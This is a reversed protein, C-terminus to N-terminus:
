VKSMITNVVEDFPSVFFHIVLLCLTVVSLNLYVLNMMKYRVVHADSKNKIYPILAMPQMKLTSAISAQGRLRRDFLESLVAIIFSLGLAVLLSGALLLKRKPQVPYTPMVPPENIVFREGKDQLEIDKAIKAQNQKNKAIQYAEKAADYKRELSDLVGETQGSQFLTKETKQIRARIQSEEREIARIRSKAADIQAEVRAVEISHFTDVQPTSATELSELAALKSKLSKVAPHNDSYLTKLQSLKSKLEIVEDSYGPQAAQNGMPNSSIGARASALEVNLSSLESRAIAQEKQSSSLDDRLRELSEVHLTRNEPLMGANRKRYAIMEQEVRELTSKKENAEKDYFSAVSVVKDTTRKKNENVIADVIDKTISYTTEPTGFRSSVKVSLVPRQQYPNGVDAKILQTKIQQRVLKAIAVEDQPTLVKSSNAEFLDYDKAINLMKKNTLLRANLAELRAAVGNKQSEWPNQKGAEVKEAEILITASSQYVSPLFLIVFFAIIFLTSALAAIFFYKRKIISIYDDVSLDNNLYM